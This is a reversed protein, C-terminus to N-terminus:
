GNTQDGRGEQEVGVAEGGAQLIRVPVDNGPGVRRVAFENHGLGVALEIENLVANGIV